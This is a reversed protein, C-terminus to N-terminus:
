PSLSPPSPDAAPADTAEPPVASTPTEDEPAQVGCAALIFAFPSAFALKLFDRRNLSHFLTQFSM